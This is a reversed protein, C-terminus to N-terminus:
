NSTQIINELKRFDWTEHPLKCVLDTESSIFSQKVQPSQSMDQFM